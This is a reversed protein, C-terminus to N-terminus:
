ADAQTDQIEAHDQGLTSAIDLKATELADSVKAGLMTNMKDLADGGKDDLIDDIMDRIMDENDM